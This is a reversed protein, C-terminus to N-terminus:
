TLFNHVFLPQGNVTVKYSQSPVAGPYPPYPTVGAVAAMSALLLTFGLAHRFLRTAM